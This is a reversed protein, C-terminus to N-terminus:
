KLKYVGKRVKKIKKSRGLTASVVVPFNASRTPAKAKKLGAIIEATRLPEKSKKLIDVIRAELTVAPRTTYGRSSKKAAKKVRKVAKKAAKKATKRKRVM